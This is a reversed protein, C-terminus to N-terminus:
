RDEGGTALRKFYQEIAERYHPPFERGIQQLAQDREHPPLDGWAEGPALERSRVEGDGRTGAIRSDDMPRGAAGQGAGGGGGGSAASSEDDNQQQDEIMEILRDLGAVVGQQAERTAAGARGLELRRRVDRMRRAVHDLSEKDLAVADARLLRAVRAYRAPIEAERELLRDISELAADMDLLWHQCAARHFLLTAPDVSGRVDLDTLIPLAEDFRDRRVLDRAWWLRVADRLDPPLGSEELWGLDVRPAATVLPEARPDGAAVTAVLADLLDRGEPGGVAQWAARARVVADDSSGGSAVSRIWDFARERVAAPDPPTWSAERLLPDRGAPVAAALALGAALLWAAGCSSMGRSVRPPFLRM